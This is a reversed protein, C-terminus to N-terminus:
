TGQQIYAPRSGHLLKSKKQPQSCRSLTCCGRTIYAKFCRKYRAPKLGVLLQGCTHTASTIDRPHRAHHKASGTVHICLMYSTAGAVTKNNNGPQQVRHRNYYSTSRLLYTHEWQRHTTNWQLRQPTTAACGNTNQTPHVQRQVSIATIARQLISTMNSPSAYLQWAHSNHLGTVHWTATGVSAM